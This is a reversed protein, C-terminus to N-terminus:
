KLKIINPTDSDGLTRALGQIQTHTQEHFLDVFPEWVFILESLRFEIDGIKPSYFCLLKLILGNWEQCMACMDYLWLTYTRMVSIFTHTQTHPSHFNSLTRYAGRVIYAIRQQTYLLQNMKISFMRWFQKNCILVNLSPSVTTSRACHVCVCAWWVCKYRGFLNYIAIYDIM